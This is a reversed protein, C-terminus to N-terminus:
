LDRVISFLKFKLRNCLSLLAAEDGEVMDGCIAIKNKNAPKLIYQSRKNSSYFRKIEGYSQLTKIIDGMGESLQNRLNDQKNLNHM